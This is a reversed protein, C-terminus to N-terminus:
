IIDRIQAVFMETIILWPHIGNQLNKMNAYIDAFINFSEHVLYLPLYIYRPLLSPFLINNNANILFCFLAFIQCVELVFGLRSSVIKAM